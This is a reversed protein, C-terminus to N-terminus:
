RVYKGSKLFAVKEAPTACKALGDSMTPLEEPAQNVSANLMELARTKEELTSAMASLESTSKELSGKLNTIEAKASKLEEEKAQLQGKFDNVQKQMSAQMGSVRRDAEAKTVTEGEVKEEDCKSKLEKNEKELEAVREILTEIEKKLEETTKEEEVVEEKPKEETVEEIVEEVVEEKPHEETKEEVVEETTEEVVEKKLEEENPIEEAKNKMEMIRTPINKFHKDRISAAIKLPEGNAVIQCNLKWDKYNDSDIWTEASLMADIEEDTLDFKTKYIKVMGNKLQNLTAIEKQLDNSNGIAMTWPLHCMLYAGEYLKLEQCACAVVSAMSAAISTVNAVTKHGSREADKLISIM